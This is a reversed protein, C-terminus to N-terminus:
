DCITSDTYRAQPDYRDFCFWRDGSQSIWKTYFSWGERSRRMLYKAGTVGEGLRIEWEGGQWNCYVETSTRNLEEVRLSKGRTVGTVRVFRTRRTRGNHYVAVLTDGVQFCEDQQEPIPDM